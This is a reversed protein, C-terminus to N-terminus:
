VNFRPHIRSPDGYEQNIHDYGRSDGNLFPGPSHTYVSWTPPGAYAQGDHNGFVPSLPVVDICPIKPIFLGQTSDVADLAVLTLASDHYISHMQRSQLQWDRPSDQIICISDIWLYSIDLSQCVEVAERFTKPLDEM